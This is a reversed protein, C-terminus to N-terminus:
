SFKLHHHLPVLMKSAVGYVELPHYDCIKDLDFIELYGCKETEYCNFHTNFENAVLLDCLLCDNRKYHFIYSVYGLLPEDDECFLVVCEGTGYRNSEKIIAKSQFLIGGEECNFTDEIAERVFPELVELIVEKTCIGQSEKFHLFCLNAYHIYM